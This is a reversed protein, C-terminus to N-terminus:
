YFSKLRDPHVALPLIVDNAVRRLKFNVEGEKSIIRYPGHWRTIFKATMPMVAVYLWVLLGVKYNVTTSKKDYSKKMKVKSDELNEKVIKDLYNVKEILEEIEDEM